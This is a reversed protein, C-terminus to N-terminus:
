WPLKLAGCLWRVLPAAAKFEKVLVALLDPRLADADDLTRTVGFRKLKLVDVLPHDADVGPPPRKLALDTELALGAKTAGAVAKKWGAPDALIAARVANCQPTGPMWLGGGALVEGPAVQFYLGPVDIGGSSEAAVHPFSAAAHTKYPRKDPSFRTDRHIRFMSGGSAADDCFLYGSVKALHPKLDGILRLMPTKVHREYRGKHEAFWERKNNKALQRLFTFTDQTFYPEALPM